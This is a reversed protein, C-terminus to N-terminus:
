PVQYQSIADASFIVFMYLDDRPYIFTLQRARTFPYHASQSALKRLRNYPKGTLGGLGPYCSTSASPYHPHATSPVSYYSHQAPDLDPEKSISPSPLLELLSHSGDFARPCAGQRTIVYMLTHASGLSRHSGQRGVILFRCICRIGTFRAWSTRSGRILRGGRDWTYLLIFCPTSWTM